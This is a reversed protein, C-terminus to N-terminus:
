VVKKSAVAHATRPQEGSGSDGVAVEAGGAGLAAGAGGAGAAAVALTMVASRPPNM